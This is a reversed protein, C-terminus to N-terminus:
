RATTSLFVLMVQEVGDSFGPIFLLCFVWVVPVVCCLTLYTKTTM